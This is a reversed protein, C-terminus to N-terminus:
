VTPRSGFNKKAKPTLGISAINNKAVRRLCDNNRDYVTVFKNTMGRKQANFVEGRKTTLTFFRGRTENLTTEINNNM